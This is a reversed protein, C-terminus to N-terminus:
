LLLSRNGWYLTQHTPSWHLFPSTSSVQRRKRTGVQKSCLDDKEWGVALMRKALLSIVGSIARNGAVSGPYGCAPPPPGNSSDASLLYGGRDSSGEVLHRWTLGVAVCREEPERHGSVQIWATMPNKKEWFQSEFSVGGLMATASVCSILFGPRNGHTNMLQCRPAQRLLSVVPWM